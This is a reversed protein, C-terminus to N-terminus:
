IQEGFENIQDGSLHLPSELLFQKFEEWALASQEQLGPLGARVQWVVLYILGGVVGLLGLEAVTVALWKPWRIRQLGQVLPVLLAALLISILLPIVILSLQMILFIFLAVVGALALIRWSWAGAIIM